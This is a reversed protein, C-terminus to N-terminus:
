FPLYSDFDFDKSLEQMNWSNIKKSLVDPNDRFARTYGEDICHSYLAHCYQMLHAFPDDYGNIRFTRWISFIVCLDKIGRESNMFCSNKRLITLPRISQEVMNTDPPVMPDNLYTKFNEKHSYWYFTARSFPDGKKKQLKKGSKTPVLHREVMKSMITEIQTMLKSEIERANIIAADNNQEKAYGEYAYIKSFAYFVWLLLFRDNNDSLLSQSIFKEADKEPMALLENSLQEPNLDEIIYRRLHVLCNQILANHQSALSDYGLFADSILTKFKFDDTLVEKISSFSRTPLFDYCSFQMKAKPVSCFSLIYNSTSNEEDEARDKKHMCNGRGQTELCNFPTGDAMIYKAQQAKKIIRNYLPLLYIKTFDSLNDVITSHGVELNQQVASALQNLPVGHCICDCAHLMFKIGISRNPKIPLDEKEELCIHVRGCQPCVAIDSIMELVEVCRTIEGVKSILTKCHQDGSYNMKTACSACIHSKSVTHHVTRNPKRQKAKKGPSKKPTSAEVKPTKIKAINICANLEDTLCEKPLAQVALRTLENISNANKVAEKIGRNATEKAKALQEQLTQSKGEIDSTAPTDNNHEKDKVKNNKSNATNRDLGSAFLQARWKVADQIWEIHEAFIERLQESLELSLVRDAVVLRCNAEKTMEATLKIQGSTLTTVVALQHSLKLNKEELLSNKKELRITKKELKSAKKEFKSANLEAIVVKKNAANLENNVVNLKNNAANLLKILEEKSLNEFNPLDAM